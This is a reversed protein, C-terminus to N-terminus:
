LTNGRIRCHGILGTKADIKAFVIDEPVQFVRIPKDELVHSMYDLWIPGAAKAGSEKPGLSESQDHGVWAGTVFRPTYGVFWADKLDNTTGTKGAVPRKLALMQTGTGYKVVSELMNTMIYATNAAIVKERVAVNDELVDGNRDIIKTIFIPTIKYGLNNFVTYANVLELLSVGSSGLAISLDENIPSTIGLNRAYDITYAIGIDQLIKITIVNMSKALANRLLIKGHFSRAYNKPKWDRQKNKDWFVVPSDIMVTAPTYGKDIAAAYVIPKFASGPQRRAQIARNFQNNTFDYGGVMAVM